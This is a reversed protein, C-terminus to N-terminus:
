QLCSTAAPQAYQATLSKAPSTAAKRQRSRLADPWEAIVEATGDTSNDDCFIVEFTPRRRGACATLTRDIFFETM